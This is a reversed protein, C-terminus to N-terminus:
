LKLQIGIHMVITFSKTALGFSSVGERKGVLLAAGERKEIKYRKFSNRLLWSIEAM